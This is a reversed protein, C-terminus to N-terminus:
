EGHIRVLSPQNGVIISRSTYYRSHVYRVYEAGLANAIESGHAAIISRILITSLNTIGAVDHLYFSYSWRERGPKNAHRLAVLWRLKAVLVGIKAPDDAARTHGSRPRPAAARMLASASRAVSAAFDGKAKVPRGYPDRLLRLNKLDEWYVKGFEWAVPVRVDHPPGVWASMKGLGKLHERVEGQTPRRGPFALTDEWTRPDDRRLIIGTWERGHPGMRGYAAVVKTGPRFRPVPM